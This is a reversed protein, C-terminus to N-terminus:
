NSYDLFEFPEFDGIENSMKFRRLTARRKAQAGERTIKRRLRRNKSLFESLALNVESVNSLDFTVSLIKIKNRKSKVKNMEFVFDLRVKTRISL